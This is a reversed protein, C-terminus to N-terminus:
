KCKKCLHIFSSYVNKCMDKLSCINENERPYISLTPKSTICCSHTHKVEYSIVRGRRLPTTWKVKGSAIYSTSAINQGQLFRCKHVNYINKLLTFALPFKWCCYVRGQAGAWKQGQRRSCSLESGQLHTWFVWKERDKLQHEWPSCCIKM